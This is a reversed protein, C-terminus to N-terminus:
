NIPNVLKIYDYNVSYKSTLIIINEGENLTIEGFIGEKFNVWKDGFTVENNYPNMEVLSDQLGYEVKIIDTVLKTEGDWTAMSAQLM